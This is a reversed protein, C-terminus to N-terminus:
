KGRTVELRTPDPQHPIAPMRHSRPKGQRPQFRQAMPGSQIPLCDCHPSGQRQASLLSQPSFPILNTPYNVLYPPTSVDRRLCAPPINSVRRGTGICTVTHLQLCPVRCHIAFFHPVM